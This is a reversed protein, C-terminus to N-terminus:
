LRSIDLYTVLVMVTLILIFGFLNLGIVFKESPPKRRIGEYTLLVLHGGDLVPIPLINIVALNASLMALFILFTSFGSQATAWAFTAITIPGGAHQGLDRIRQLFTVVLMLSEKTERGALRLADGLSEAQEIRVMGELQFGRKPSFLNPEDDPTLEVPEAKGEVSLQVKVGPLAHQLSAAAYPFNLMKDALVIPETQVLDFGSVSPQVLKIATLKDGPKLGSEAAPSNPEVGVVENLVAYAIGLAPASVPDKPSLSEESWRPERLTAESKVDKGDRRVIMAVSKGALQRLQEPLKLPDRTLPKGSANDVIQVIEDDPALGAKAAPSDPQVATIKGFKMVLGLRRLPRPQVILTTRIPTPKEEVPQSAAEGQQREITFELPKDALRVLIEQLQAYNELPVPSAQSGAVRVAVLRDGAQVGADAAPSEPFAPYKKHIQLESSPGIGMRAINDDGHVPSITIQRTQQTRPDYIELDISKGRGLLATIRQVDKEFRPDKVDNIRTIVAGVPINHHWAASGPSIRGIVSQTSPVGIGYAWVSLVYCLIVNMIVGASIIAMRQPVSKALYSRPDWAKAAPATGAPAAQPATAPAEPGALGEAEVEARAREFEEQQKYPNDDQGLMKVYGGLPLIGIGYETEGWQKKFIASPLRLTGLRFKTFPIGLPISIPFDFGVYFKECKVGCWKAVLFHGLEHIFILLGLGVAVQLVGLWFMPDFLWFGM